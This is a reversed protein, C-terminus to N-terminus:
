ESNECQFSIAIVWLKEVVVRAVEFVGQYDSAFAAFVEEAHNAGVIHEDASAQPRHAAVLTHVYVVLSAQVLMQMVSLLIDQENPDAIAFLRKVIRLVHQCDQFTPMDKGGTGGHLAQVWMRVREMAETDLRTVDLNKATLVKLDLVTKAGTELQPTDKHVFAVELKRKCPTKLDHAEDVEEIPDEAPKPKPTGM